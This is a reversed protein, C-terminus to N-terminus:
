KAVTCFLQVSAARIRQQCVDLFSLCSQRHAQFVADKGEKAADTRHSACDSFWRRVYTCPLPFPANWGMLLGNHELDTLRESQRDGCLMDNEGKAARIEGSWNM